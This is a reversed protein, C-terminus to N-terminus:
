LSTGDQEEKKREYVEIWDHIGAWHAPCRQAIKVWDRRLREFFTADGTCGGDGEGIYVLRTGGRYYSLCESAMPDDYPPWCLFLARDAHDSLRQPGGFHLPFYCDRLIGRLQGDADLPSHWDNTTIQDPPWKDYAVMDVDLQSLQWAWYGTGAGIEVARPGLFGAVFACSEPDPIAWCYQRCLRERRDWNTATRLLQQAGAILSLPENLSHDRGDRSNNSLLDAQREEWYPNITSTKATM